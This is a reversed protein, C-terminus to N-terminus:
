GVMELVRAVEEDPTLRDADILHAHIGALLPERRAAQEALFAEPVEGYVPRHDDASRFREALLAPEVHLWIVAVGPEILAARCEPDDIVSAAASIVTV